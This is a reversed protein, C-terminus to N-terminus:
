KGIFLQFGVGLSVSKIDSNSTSTNPYGIGSTYNIEQDQHNINYNLGITLGLNQSVLYALGITPIFSTAKGKGTYSNPGSQDNRTSSLTLKSYSYAVSLYPKLKNNGIFYRIFPALGVASSNNKYYYYSNDETSKGNVISIPIGAGVVLGNAVFYGASPSISASLSRGGNQNQYSFNGIQAGVTWRGKQTQAKSILSGVVILLFCLISTKM